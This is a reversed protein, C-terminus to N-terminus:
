PNAFMLFGDRGMIVSSAKIMVNADSYEPQNEDLCGLRTDLFIAGIAELSWRHIYKLIDDIEMKDDVKSTVVNCFELSIDELPKIDSIGNYRYLM